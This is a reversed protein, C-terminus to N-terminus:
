VYIKRVFLNAEPFVFYVAIRSFTTNGNGCLLVLLLSSHVWVTPTDWYLKTLDESEREKERERKREQEAGALRAAPRSL